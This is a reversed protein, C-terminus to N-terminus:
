CPPCMSYNTKWPGCRANSSFCITHRKRFGGRPVSSETTRSCKAWSVTRDHSSARGMRGPKLGKAETGEM